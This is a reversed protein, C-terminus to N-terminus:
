LTSELLVRPNSIAVGLCFLHRLYFTKRVGKGSGPCGKGVCSALEISQIGAALRDRKGLKVFDDGGIVLFPEGQAIVSEGLRPISETVSPQDGGTEPRITSIL